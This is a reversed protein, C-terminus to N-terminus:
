SAAEEELAGGQQRQAAARTRWASHSLSWGYLWPAIIAIAAAFLIIPPHWMYLPKAVVFIQVSQDLAVLLTVPVLYIRMEHATWAEAFFRQLRTLFVVYIIMLLNILGLALFPGYLFSSGMSIFLCNALSLFIMAALCLRPWHGFRSWRACMGLGFLQICYGLIRLGMLIAPYMSMLNHAITRLGNASLHFAILFVAILFLSAFLQSLLFGWMIWRLGRACQNLEEGEPRLLSIRTTM